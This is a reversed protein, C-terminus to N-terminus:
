EYNKIWNIYGREKGIHTHPSWIINHNHQNHLSRFKSYNIIENVKDFSLGQSFEGNNILYYGTTSEQKTYRQQEVV